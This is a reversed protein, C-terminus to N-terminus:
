IPFKKGQKEDLLAFTHTHPSPSVATKRLHPKVDWCKQSGQFAPAIGGVRGSSSCRAGCCSASCGADRGPLMGSARHFCCCPKLEAPRWACATWPRSMCLALLLQQTKLRHSHALIWTWPMFSPSTTAFPIANTTTHGAGPVVARQQLTENQEWPQDCCSIRTKCFSAM